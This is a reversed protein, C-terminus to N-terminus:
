GFARAALDCTIWSRRVELGGVALVAPDRQNLRPLCSATQVSGPGGSSTPTHLRRCPANMRVAPHHLSRIRCRFPPVENPRPLCRHQLYPRQCGRRTALVPEGAQEVMPALAARWRGTSAASQREQPFGFLLAFTSASRDCRGM